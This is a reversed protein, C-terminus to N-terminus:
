YLKDTFVVKGDDFLRLIGLIVANKLLYTCINFFLLNGTDSNTEIGDIVKNLIENCDRQKSYGTWCCPQIEREDIGWFELEGYFLNGCVNHPTHLHGTRFYNLIAIFSNPDRDFFYEKLNFFFCYSTIDFSRHFITLFSVKKIEDYDSNTETLNALRSEIILRLTSKYTEFIQGGINLRIRKCENKKNM